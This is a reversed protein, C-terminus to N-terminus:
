VNIKLSLVIETSRKRENGERRNVTRKLLIIYKFYLPNTQTKYISGDSCALLFLSLLPIICLAIFLLPSSNGKRKQARKWKHKAGILDSGVDTRENM